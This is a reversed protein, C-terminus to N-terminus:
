ILLLNYSLIECNKPKYCDINFYQKEGSYLRIDTGVKMYSCHSFALIKKDDNGLSEKYENKVNQCFKKFREQLCKLSEFRKRNQVRLKALETLGIKLEEINNSEYITRLKQYIKDKASDELCDFNEFYYFNEDYKIGKVYEDFYSWDIKIPSNMNFDKKTQKIDLIYDNICNSTEGILPNVVAIINDKNPHNELSYTLTQLARYFPSVYIKEFSLKNLIEQKSKAQDIGKSNLKCDIYNKNVKRHNKRKDANFYTEGHRMFLLKGLIDKSYCQIKHCKQKKM